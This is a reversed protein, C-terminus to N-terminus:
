SEAAAAPAEEAPRSKFYSDLDGDLTEKLMAADKVRYSDLEKDLEEKTLKRKPARAPKSAAKGRTSPAGRKAQQGRAATKGGRAAPAAGGRTSIGARAGKGRTPKFNVQAGGPAAPKQKQLQSFRESLSMQRPKAESGRRSM